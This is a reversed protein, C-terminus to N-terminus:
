IVVLDKKSRDAIYWQKNIIAEHLKALVTEESYFMCQDLQLTAIWFIQGTQYSKYKLMVRHPGSMLVSHKELVVFFGRRFAFLWVDSHIWYRVGNDAVPNLAMGLPKATLPEDPDIDNNFKELMAGTSSLDLDRTEAFVTLGTVLKDDLEYSEHKYKPAM